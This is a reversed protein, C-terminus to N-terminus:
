IKKKPKFVEPGEPQEYSGNVVAKLVLAQHSYIVSLLIIIRVINERCAKETNKMQMARVLSMIQKRKM